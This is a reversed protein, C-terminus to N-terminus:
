IRRPQGQGPVLGHYDPKDRTHDTSWASKWNLALFENWAFVVQETETSPYNLETPLYPTSRSKKM